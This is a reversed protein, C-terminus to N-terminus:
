QLVREKGAGFRCDKLFIAQEVIKGIIYNKLSKPYYFMNEPTFVPSFGLVLNAVTAEM